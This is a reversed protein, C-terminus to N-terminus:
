FARTLRTFLVNRTFQRQGDRSERRFAYSGGLFLGSALAYRLGLDVGDLKENRAIDLYRREVRLVEASAILDSRVEATARLAVVSRVYGASSDDATAVISEAFDRLYRADFRLWRRPEYSLRLETTAVDADGIRPDDFAIRQVGFAAVGSVVPTIQGSIGLAASGGALNRTAAGARNLARREFAALRMYIEDEDVYRYALRYAAGAQEYERGALNFARGGSAAPVDFYTVHQLEIAARHVFRGTEARLWPEARHRLAVIPGGAGALSEPNGREEVVRASVADIGLQLDDRLDLRGAVFAQGAWTNEGTNELLRILSASGGVSLAHRDLRPALTAGATSISVGDKRVGRRTSFVNDDFGIEQTVFPRLVLGFSGIGAARWQADFRQEITPEVSGAAAFASVLLM